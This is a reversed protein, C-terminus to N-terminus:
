VWLLLGFINMDKRSNRLYFVIRYIKNKEKINVFQEAIKVSEVRINNCKLLEIAQVRAQELRKKKKESFTGLVVEQFNIKLRDYFKKKIGICNKDHQRYMILPKNLVVVRGGVAFAVCMFWWDHMCIKRDDCNELGFKCLKRNIMMTCGPVFGELLINSLNVKHPSKHTYRFYSESIIELNNNVVKLDTYVLVPVDCRKNEARKMAMLTKEIKEPLWIDDQDCFMIYQEKTRRALSLFNLGANGLSPYDLIVYRSPNNRVFRRCVELTRDTSGDDHIYCVFDQYTQRELSQLMEEIYKEGNYTALLVAVIM